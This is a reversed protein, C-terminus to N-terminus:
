GQFTEASKRLERAFLDAKDSVSELAELLAASLASEILLELEKFHHEGVHAVGSQSLKDKFAEVVRHAHHTQNHSM